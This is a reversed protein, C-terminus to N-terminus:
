IQKRCLDVNLFYKEIRNQLIPCFSLVRVEKTRIKQGLTPVRQNLCLHFIRRGNQMHISHATAKTVDQFSFFM